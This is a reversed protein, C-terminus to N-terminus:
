PAHSIVLAARKNWMWPLARARASRWGLVRGGSGSPAGVVCPCHGVLPSSAAGGWGRTDGAAPAAVRAGSCAAEVRAARCRGARGGGARASIGLTPGQATGRAPPRRCVTGPPGALPIRSSQPQRWGARCRCCRRRWRRATAAAAAAGAASVLPVPATAAAAATAPAAMATPLHPVPPQALMLPLSGGCRACRGNQLALAALLLLTCAPVSLAPRPMHRRRRERAAGKSTADRREAGGGHRIADRRACEQRLTERAGRPGQPHIMRSLRVRRRERSPGGASGPRHTQGAGGKCLGRM